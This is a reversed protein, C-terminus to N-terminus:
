DRELLRNLVAFGFVLLLLVLLAGIAYLPGRWAITMVWVPLSVFLVTLLGCGLDRASLTLDRLKFKRVQRGADERITEKM